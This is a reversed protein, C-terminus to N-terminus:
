ARLLRWVLISPLGEFAARVADPVVPYAPNTVIASEPITPEHCEAVELGAATAARVYESALHVLNPVYRLEM